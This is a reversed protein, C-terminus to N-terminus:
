LSIFDRISQIIFVSNMEYMQYPLSRKHKRSKQHNLYAVLIRKNVKEFFTYPFLTLIDEQNYDYIYTESKIYKIKDLSQDFKHCHNDIFCLTHDAKDEHPLIDIVHKSTKTRSTEFLMFHFLTSTTTLLKLKTELYKVITKVFSPNNNCTYLIFFTLENTDEHFLILRFIDFLKPRFVQPYHDLLHHTEDETLRSHYTTEIINMIFIMQEFCGITHDFDIIISKKM